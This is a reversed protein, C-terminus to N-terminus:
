QPLDCTFTISNNVSLVVNNFTANPTGPKSGYDTMLYFANSSATFEVDYTGPVVSYTGTCYGAPITFSTAPIGYQYLLVTIPFNNSNSYSGTAMTIAAKKVKTGASIKKPATASTFTIQALLCLMAVGALLITKKM